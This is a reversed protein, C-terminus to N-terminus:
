TMDEKVDDHPRQGVFAALEVLDPSSARWPRFRLEAERWAARGLKLILGSSYAGSAISAKSYGLAYLAELDALVNAFTGRDVWFPRDELQLPFGARDRAITARFLLQKQGSTTIVAVFPPAPPDLLWTRWEARTPNEYLGDAVLHSYNRWSYRIGTKPPDARPLTPIFANWTEPISLAKCPWCIADSAQEAATWHSTYLPTIADTKRWADADTPGGCLYCRDSTPAPKGVPPPYPPLGITHAVFQSASETAM